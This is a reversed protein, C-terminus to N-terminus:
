CKLNRLYPNYKREIDLTSDDGHGCYLKYDGKLANLKALSKSLKNFDGYPLDCRGVSGQFLTDGTFICDNIIYCVGGKTHGSAAMVEVPLGCLNLKEGGKVTKDVEFKPVYVGGFMNLYEPSFILDKEEEGCYIKAGTDALTKCGGVHDFHGHTLLVYKCNLSLVELRESVNEGSPDIVVADKGDETVIYSNSGSFVPLVKIVQM